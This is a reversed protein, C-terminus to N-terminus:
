RSRAIPSNSAHAAEHMARYVREALEAPQIWHAIKDARGYRYLAREGAAIMEPTIEVESTDRRESPM